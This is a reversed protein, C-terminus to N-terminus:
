CDYESVESRLYRTGRHIWAQSPHVEVKGLPGRVELRGDYDGAVGSDLGVVADLDAEDRHLLDGVHGLQAAGLFNADWFPQAFHPNDVEHTEIDLGVAASM